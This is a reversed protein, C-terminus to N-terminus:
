IGKVEYDRQNKLMSWMVRVMHKGTARIAQNHKKGLLRKKDYYKKSEACHEVHRAIATMMTRKAHKNVHHFTKTGVKSGSSNDLM